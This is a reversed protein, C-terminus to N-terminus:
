EQFGQLWRSAYHGVLERRSYLLKTDVSGCGVKEGDCVSRLFAHSRGQKCPCWSVTCKGNRQHVNHYFWKLWVGIGQNPSTNGHIQPDHRCRQSPFLMGGFLCLLFLLIFFDVAKWNEQWSSVHVNSKQSVYYSLSVIVCHCPRQLHWWSYRPLRSIMARHMPCWLGLWLWVLRVPIKPVRCIGGLIVKNSLGDETEHHMPCWFFINIKQSSKNCSTYSIGHHCSWGSTRSATCGDKICKANRWRPNNTEQKCGQRRSNGNRNIMICSFPLVNANPANDRLPWLDRRFGTCITNRSHLWWCKWSVAM